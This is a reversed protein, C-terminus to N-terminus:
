LLQHAQEPGPETQMKSLDIKEEKPNKFGIEKEWYEKGKTKDCTCLVCWSGDPNNGLCNRKKGNILFVCDQFGFEINLQQVLIELRKEAEVWKDVNDKWIQNKTEFQPDDDEPILKKIAEHAQWMKDIGTRVRVKLAEREQDKTDIEYLEGPVGEIPPHCVACNWDGRKEGIHSPTRRFFKTSKCSGCPKEPLNNEVM